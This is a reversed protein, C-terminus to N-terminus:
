ERPANTNPARSPPTPPPADPEERPPRRKKGGGPRRTGKPPPDTYIRLNLPPPVNYNYNLNYNFNLNPRINMPPLLEIPTRTPRTNIVGCWQLGFCAAAIVAYVAATTLCGPRDNANAVASFTKDGKPDDRFLKKPAASAPWADALAGAYGGRRPARAEEGAGLALLKAEAADAEESGPPALA